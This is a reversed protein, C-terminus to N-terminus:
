TQSLIQIAQLKVSCIHEALQAQVAAPNTITSGVVLKQLAMLGSLIYRNMVEKPKIKSLRKLIRQMDNNCERGIKLNNM